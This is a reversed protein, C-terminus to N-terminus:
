DNKIHVDMQPFPIAIHNEVFAQNIEETLDFKVGWFDASDVWVRLTMKLSSDAMETMRLFPAPDELIQAHKKVISMVIEKAAEVDTGYAVNLEIDVRRNKEKSYNIMVTNLLSGNPITIHRNDGTKLVTYFIGVEIVTGSNGCSELFDGVRFPRFILLMLGGAMNSLSGQLALALAAGCTALVTIVSATEVGLIGVICVLLVAYLGIKLFSGIFTLATPDVKATLKGTTVKKLIFRILLNGILLVLLALLIKWALDICFAVVSAWIETWDM